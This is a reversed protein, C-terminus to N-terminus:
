VRIDLLDPVICAVHTRPALLTGAQDYSCWLQEVTDLRADDSILPPFKALPTGSEDFGSPSSIFRQSQLPPSALRLRETM